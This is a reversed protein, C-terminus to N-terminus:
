PAKTGTDALDGKPISTAMMTEVAPWSNGSCDRAFIMNMGPGACSIERMAQPHNDGMIFRYYLGKTLLGYAIYMTNDIIRNPLLCINQSVFDTAVTAIAAVDSPFATEGV